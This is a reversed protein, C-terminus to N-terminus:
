NSLWGVPSKGISCYISRAWRGPTTSTEIPLEVIQGTADDSIGVRLEDSAYLAGRQLPLFSQGRHAPRRFLPNFLTHLRDPHRPRGTVAKAGVLHPQERGHYGLAEGGDPEPEHTSGLRFRSATLAGNLEAV